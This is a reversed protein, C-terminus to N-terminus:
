AQDASALFRFYERPKRSLFYSICGIGYVLPILTLLFEVFGYGVLYGWEDLWIIGSAFDVMYAVWGFILLLVIWFVMSAYWAWKAGLRQGITVLLAWAALFLPFFYYWPLSYSTGSPPPGGVSMLAILVMQGYFLALASMLTLASVVTVGVPRSSM